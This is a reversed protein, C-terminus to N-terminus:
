LINSKMGEVEKLILKGVSNRPLNEVFEIYKPRKITPLYQKMFDALEEQTLKKKRRLRIINDPLNLKNM